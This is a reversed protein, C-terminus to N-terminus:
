CLLRCTIRELDVRGCGPRMRELGRLRMKMERCREGGLRVMWVLLLVMCGGGADRMRPLRDAGGRSWWRTQSLDLLLLLLLLM